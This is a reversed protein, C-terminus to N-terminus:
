LETSNFREDRDSLLVEFDTEPQEDKRMCPKYEKRIAAKSYENKFQFYVQLPSADFLGHLFRLRKVHILYGLYSNLTRQMKVLVEYSPERDEIRGEMRRVALRLAGMTRKVAYNRHPKLCTGLFPVGHTHRQLVIKNPHLTLHLEDHLFDRLLPILSKLRVRSTDIIFFDDVYRGYHKCRLTRKVFNDLRNLYVNSFLQSTLDGIPLGVGPPSKLLSKSPPLDDWGKRDGRIECNRTPDKFLITRLLFRITDTDMREAWTRGDGSGCPRQWYAELTQMILEYLIKKDISMFYGKLDLKLVWAQQRYNDTCSRIHHEMREVGFLTGKGKRCSYSDYIMEREFVPAIYNYLLHHIVRDRFQSAFIERKVPYHVLFCVAPSPTYTRNKVEEYLAVLNSELDMEFALQSETNRKHRRADFYAHFVDTLLTSGEEM